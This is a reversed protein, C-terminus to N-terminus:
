EVSLTVAEIELGDVPLDEGSEDIFVLQDPQIRFLSSGAAVGDVRMEGLLGSRYSKGEPAIGSVALHVVGAEVQFLAIADAGLLGGIAFGDDEDIAVIEDDFEIRLGMAFLGDDLDAAEIRLVASEGVAIEGTDAVLRLAPDPTAPAAPDDEGCGGAALLVCGLILAANKLNSM